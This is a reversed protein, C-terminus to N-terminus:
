EPKSGVLTLTIGTQYRAQPNEPNSVKGAAYFGVSGTSFEKTNAFLRGWEKGNVDCIIVQLAAPAKEDRFGTKKEAM